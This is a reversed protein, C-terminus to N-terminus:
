TGTQQEQIEVGREGHALSLRRIRAPHRGPPTAADGPPAPAFVIDGEKALRALMAPALPVRPEPEPEAQPPQPASAPSSSAAPPSATAPPGARSPSPRASPRNRSVQGVVDMLIQQMLGDPTHRMRRHLTVDRYTPDGFVMQMLDALVRVARPDLNDDGADAAPGAFESLDFISIRGHCTFVTGDLTFTIGETSVADDPMSDSSYSLPAQPM